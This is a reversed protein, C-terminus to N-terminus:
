DAAEASTFLEGAEVFKGVFRVTESVTLWLQRSCAPSPPPPALVRFGRMFVPGDRLEHEKPGVRAVIARRDTESFSTAVPM